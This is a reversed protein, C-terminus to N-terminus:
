GDDDGGIFAQAAAAGNGELLVHVLREGVRIGLDVLDDHELAGAALDGPMVVPVDPPVIGDGGGARIARGLGHAGLIGQEHEVGRAGGALGLSHQVGRAAVQDIGGEGELVHEVIVFLVDVPTGGVHAPDRTVGVQDVPREGIAGGGEHEFPHGVVRGGVAHALHHVLVLDADEIGCGGGDAGQHGLALLGDFAGGAGAQADHSGYTFGDVRFGPLPVVAGYPVLAAGDDVGPPLGLGAADQYARQGADGRELGAGGGTGEEPHLRSQYVVQTLWQLAGGLAVQHDGVGPRALHAGYEAIVLAELLGVEGGERAAVEGAVAGTAVFITVVPDGTPHIIYQVDGAVAHAGGLDLRGQNGMGLDGLRRHHPHGVLDLTLADVGIDGQDGPLLRAALQVFLHLLPHALLDAGDGGRVHDM